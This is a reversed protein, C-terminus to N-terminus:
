ANIRRRDELVRGGLTKVVDKIIREDARNLRAILVAV